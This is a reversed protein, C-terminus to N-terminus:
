KACGRQQSLLELGDLCAPDPCTAWIMALLGHADLNRPRLEIVRTCDRVAQQYAERRYWPYDDLPRPSVMDGSDRILNILSQQHNGYFFWAEGRRMYHDDRNPNIQIARTFDDIAKSYDWNDGGDRRKLGLRARCAYPEDHDPSVEVAQDYDVSAREFDGKAEWAQGRCIYYTHTPNIQIADTLDAIARDFDGLKEQWVQSRSFFASESKPDIRLAEAFYALSISALGRDRWELGRHVHGKVSDFGILYHEKNGTERIVLSYPWASGPKTRPFQTFQSLHQDFPVVEDDKVWGEIVGPALKFDPGKAPSPHFGDWEVVHLESRNTFEKVEM